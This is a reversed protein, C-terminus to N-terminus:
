QVKVEMSLVEKPIREFGAAILNDDPMGTISKTVYLGDGIHILYSNYKHGFALNTVKLVPEKRDLEPDFEWIVDKPNDIVYFEENEYSDKLSRESPAQHMGRRDWYKIALYKNVTM